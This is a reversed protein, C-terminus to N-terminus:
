IGLMERLNDPPTWPPDFTVEIEVQSFGLDYMATSVDQKLQGGFPCLPTTYTMTIKIHTESMVDVGYVLGLTWIDLGLEPDQVTELEEIIREKTHM